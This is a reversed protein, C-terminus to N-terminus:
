SKKLFLDSLAGDGVSKWLFQKIEGEQLSRRNVASDEAKNPFLRLHACIQLSLSWLYHKIAQYIM